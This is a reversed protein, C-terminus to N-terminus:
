RGRIEMDSPLVVDSICFQGIGREQITRVLVTNFADGPNNGMGLLVQVASEDHEMSLQIPGGNLPFPTRQESVTDQGGCPFTGLKDEDFGRAAPSDLTFHSFTLPLLSLLSVILIM